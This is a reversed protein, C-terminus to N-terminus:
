MIQQAEMLRRQLVALGELDRGLALVRGDAGLSLVAYQVAIDAGQGLPHNVHRWRIDGDAQEPQLMAEIKARSDATATQSWPRGIWAHCDLATLAGKCVSVEEVVGNKGVVLAIDSAVGVLRALTDANLNALEM